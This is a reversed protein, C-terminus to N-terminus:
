HRERSPGPARQPHVAFCRTGGTRGCSGGEAVACFARLALLDAEPQQREAM